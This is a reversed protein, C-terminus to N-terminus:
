WSGDMVVGEMVQKEKVMSLWMAWRTSLLGSAIFVMCGVNQRSSSATSVCSLLSPAARASTMLLVPLCKLAPM